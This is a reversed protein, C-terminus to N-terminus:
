GHRRSSETILSIVCWILAFFATIWVTTIAISNFDHHRTLDIPARIVALGGLPVLFLGLAFVGVWMLWKGASPLYPLLAIGLLLPVSYIFGWITFSICLATAGLLATALGLLRCKGSFQAANKSM